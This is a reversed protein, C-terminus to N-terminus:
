RMIESGAGGLAGEHHTYVCALGKCIAALPCDRTSYNKLYQGVKNNNNDSGLSHAPKSMAVECDAASSPCRLISNERGQLRAVTRDM